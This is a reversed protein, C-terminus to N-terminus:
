KDLEKELKKIKNQLVQIAKRHEQVQKILKGKEESVVRNNIIFYESGFDGTPEIALTQGEIDYCIELYDLVKTIEKLDM